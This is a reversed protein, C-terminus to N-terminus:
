LKQLFTTGTFGMISLVTQVIVYASAALVLGVAVNMIINKAKSKKETSGGSTVLEFGAYAFMIAALPIALYIFIFKIVRNVLEIAEKFGCNETCQVLAEKPINVKPPNPNTGPNPVIITPDYCGKSLINYVEPFICRTVCNNTLMEYSQQPTCHPTTLNVCGQRLFSYIEPSSCRVGGPPTGCTNTSVNLSDLTCVPATDNITGRGVSFPYSTAGTPMISTNLSLVAGYFNKNPNDSFHGVARYYYTSFPQLGQEMFFDGSEGVKGLVNEERNVEITKEADSDLNPDGKKYEFYTTFDKQQINGSYYGMFVFSSPSIMTYGATQIVIEDEDEAKVSSSSFYFLSIVGLIILTIIFSSKFIKKM